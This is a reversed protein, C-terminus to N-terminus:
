TFKLFLSYGLLNVAIKVTAAGKADTRGKFTLTKHKKRTVTITFKTLPANSTATLLYSKAGVKKFLISGKAKAAAKAIKATTYVNAGLSGSVVFKSGDSSSAVANGNQIANGSVWTVGSDQSIYVIGMYSAAVLKSGDASM